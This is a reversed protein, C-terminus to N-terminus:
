IFSIGFNKLFQLSGSGFERCDPLRINAVVSNDHEAPCDPYVANVEFGDIHVRLLNTAYCLPPRESNLIAESPQPRICIVQGKTGILSWLNKGIVITSGISAYETKLQKVGRERSEEESVILAPSGFNKNTFLTISGKDSYVAPTM